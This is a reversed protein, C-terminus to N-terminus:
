LEGINTYGNICFRSQIAIYLAWTFHTHTNISVVVPMLYSQCALIFSFKCMNKQVYISNMHCTAILQVATLCWGIGQVLWLHQVVPGNFVCYQQFENRAPGFRSWALLVQIDIDNSHTIGYTRQLMLALLCKQQQGKILLDTPLKAPKSRGFVMQKSWKDTKLYFGTSCKFMDILNSVYHAGQSSLILM